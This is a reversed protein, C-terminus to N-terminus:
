EKKKGPLLDASPLKRVLKYLGTPCHKLQLMLKLRDRASLNNPNAVFRCLNINREVPGEQLLHLEESSFNNGQDNVRIETLTTCADVAHFFRQKAERPLSLRIDVHLIKLVEMERITKELLNFKEGGKQFDSVEVFLEEVAAKGATLATNYARICCNWLLELRKAPSKMLALVSRAVVGGVFGLRLSTIQLHQFLDTLMLAAPLDLIHSCDWDLGDLATLSFHEWADPQLDLGIKEDSSLTVNYMYFMKINRNARFFQVLAQVPLRNVKDLRLCHITKSFAAAMLLEFADLEAHQLTLKLLNNQRLIYQVLFHIDDQNLHLYEGFKDFNITLDTLTANKAMARQLDQITYPKLGKILSYLDVTFSTGVDLVGGNMANLARRTTTM